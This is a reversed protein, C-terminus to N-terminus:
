IYLKYYPTVKWERFQGYMIYVLNEVTKVYKACSNRNPFM